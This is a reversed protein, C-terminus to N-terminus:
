VCTFFAIIVVTSTLKSKNILLSKVLLFVVVCMQVSQRKVHQWISYKWITGLHRMKQLIHVFHFRLYCFKRQEISYRIKELGIINEYLIKTFEFLFIWFGSFKGFGIQLIWCSKSTLNLFFMHEFKGICYFICFLLYFM